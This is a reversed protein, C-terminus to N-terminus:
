EVRGYEQAKRTGDWRANLARCSLKVKTRRVLHELVSFAAGSMRFKGVRSRRIGSRRSDGWMTRSAALVYLAERVLHDKNGHASVLRERAEFYRASPINGAVPERYGPVIVSATPAVM